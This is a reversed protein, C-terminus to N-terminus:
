AFVAKRRDLLNQLEYSIAEALSQENSYQAGNITINAVLGSVTGTASGASSKATSTGTTLNVGTTDPISIMDETAKEVMDANREIGLAMGEPVSSGIGMFVKSPSNVKLTSKTSNISTTGLNASKAKIQSVVNQKALGIAYGEAVSQGINEAEKEAEGSKGTILYTITKGLGSLGNTVAKWIQSAINSFFSTIDSVNISTIWNVFNTGFQSFQDKITQWATGVWSTIKGAISDWTEDGNTFYAIIGNAVGGFTSDIITMAADVWPTIADAIAGWNIGEGEGTFLSKILNATGKLGAEIKELTGQTWSSTKDKVEEWNTNTYWDKIKEATKELTNKINEYAGTAWDSVDKKVKEWDTNTFWDAIKSATNTLAMKIKNFAGKAWGGVTKKVAEWDINTIWTKINKATDGLANKIKQWAGSAWGGVKKKVEEWDISTFWNFINWAAEGLATKIMEWASAAWGGVTSIVSAWDISTFWEYLKDKVVSLANQIMEWANSAWGGVMEIVADWDIETFWEMYKEAIQSFINSIMDFAGSAWGGVMSAIGEWDVSSFWEFFKEGVTSFIDHIVQMGHTALSGITNGLEEWDINSFLNVLWEVVPSFVGKIKEVISSFHETFIRAIENGDLGKFWAVIDKILGGFVVQANSVVLEFAKFLGDLTFSIGKDAGEMVGTIYDVLPAFVDKIMKVVKEIPASLKQWGKKIVELGKSFTKKVSEFTVGSKKLITVIGTIAVVVLSLPNTLTAAINLATTVAKFAAFATVVTGVVSAIADFNDVVWGAVSVVKDFIGIAVNLAPELGDNLKEIIKQIAGAIATLRDQVEPKNVWENVKTTMKGVTETIGEVATTATGKIGDYFALALSEVGSRLITLKGALNNQMTAAMAEAAGDANGIASTLNKFDKESANIIALWGASAEKGFIASAAAAQQKESLKGLNKRLNEMTGMLDISGDKNTKLKVNYENMAKKMEKTPKVLNQLGTRLSTGGQSAKIGANALLGLAVATDEATIGLAGAVPAVYKFSEGLMGVNTNSNSSAVALIDAFHASKEAELGFATMADTVIDSVTGLNEGSAAALNMVGSIGDLMDNSKWGAMAMYTFAEGAETASFKTKAGMEQAKATLASMDDGTAGSIAGVQSMVAEFSMGADMVYGSFEKVKGGVAQFGSSILNGAAVAGASLEPLASKAKAIGSEYETSDLSIKAVLDFLDM